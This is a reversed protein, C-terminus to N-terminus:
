PTRQRITRKTFMDAKRELEGNEDLIELSCILCYSSDDAFAMNKGRSNLLGYKAIFADYLRNLKRQQSQLAEDSYDETQYEILDRVCDRIAIMGKIRGEATVSTEVRNM